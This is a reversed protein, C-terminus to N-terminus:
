RWRRGRRRRLSGRVGASPARGRGMSGRGPAWRSSSQCRCRAPRRARPAPGLDTPATNPPPRSSPQSYPTSDRATAVLDDRSPATTSIARKAPASISSIAAGPLPNAEAQWRSWWELPLHREISWALTGPLVLAFRTASRGRPTLLTGGVNAATPGARDRPNAAPDQVSRHEAWPLTTTAASAVVTGTPAWTATPPPTGPVACGGVLRATSGTM